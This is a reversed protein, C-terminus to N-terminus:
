EAKKEEDKPAEAPAGELPAAPAAAEGTEEEVATASAVIEEADTLLRASPPLRIDGAVIHSGLETLVSLDIELHQPLEAPAVEIEVEHLAKVIVCGLKEAPAQGVFALPINIEIKKGAELAYLDAHLPRSSVPDFQVDRILTEKKTGELDLTVVTTEGAEKFMRAFKQADISLAVSPEKPGYLVAPLLGAARLDAPDSKVDRRTASITIMPECYVWLRFKPLIPDM